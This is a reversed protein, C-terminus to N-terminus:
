LGGDFQRLKEKIMDATVEEYELDVKEKGTQITKIAMYAKKNETKVSVIVASEGKAVNSFSINFGDEGRLIARRKTFILKTDVDYNRANVLVNTLNKKPVNWFYDCNVWGFTRNKFFYYNAMMRAKTAEDAKGAFFEDIKKQRELNRKQRIQSTFANINDFNLSNLQVNTLTSNLLNQEFSDRKLKLKAMLQYYNKVKNERM